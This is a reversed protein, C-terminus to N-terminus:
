SNNSTDITKWAKFSRLRADPTAYSPHMPGHHSIIGLEEARPNTFSYVRLATEYILIILSPNFM